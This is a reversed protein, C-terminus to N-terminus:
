RVATETLRQRSKITQSAVAEEFPSSMVDRAYRQTTTAAAAVAAVVMATHPAAGRSPNRPGDDSGATADLDTGVGCAFATVAFRM